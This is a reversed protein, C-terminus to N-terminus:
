EVEETRKRTAPDVIMRASKYALYLEKNGNFLEMLPDIQNILLSYIEDIKDEILENTTKRENILQRPENILGEFESVESGLDALLAETLGYNALETALPTIKDVLNKSYNLIENHRMQVSLQSETHVVFNSLNENKSIFAYVKLINSAKLCVAVLDTRTMNKNGATKSPISDAKAILSDTDIILTQYKLIIGPMAPVISLQPEYKKLTILVQQNANHRASITKNM